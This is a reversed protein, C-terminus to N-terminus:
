DGEASTLPADLAQWHGAQLRQRLRRAADAQGDSWVVLRRRRQAVEVTLVVCRRGVFQPGLLRGPVWEDRTIELWLAGDRTWRLSRLARRAHWWRVGLWGGAAALVVPVLARPAEVAALLVLTAALVDLAQGTRGRGLALEVSAEYENSM